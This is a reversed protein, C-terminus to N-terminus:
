HTRQSVNGVRALSEIILPAVKEAHRFIHGADIARVEATPRSLRRCLTALDKEGYICLLPIDTFKELEPTVLRSNPGYTGMTLDIIDMHFDAQPAVGLLVVLAIDERLEPSLHNIAFPLVDAGQSYGILLLRRSGHVSIWDHIMADLDRGLEEPSRQKGFFYRLSNFGVTDIGANALARALHDDFSIWGGAGSLIVALFTADHNQAAFHEDHPLKKDYSLFVFAGVLVGM